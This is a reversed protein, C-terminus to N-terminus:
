PTKYATKRVAGSRDTQTWTGVRRGAKMEGETVIGGVLSKWPGELLGDKYTATSMVSGDVDYETWTGTKRDAAFQGTTAPKGNRFETYPGEAKGDKYTAQVSLKGDVYKKYVGEIRGRKYSSELTIQGTDTYEKWSGHRRDGAMHGDVVLKGRQTFEQYLGDPTGQYVHQKSAVKRNSHFTLMMGTGDKIEFRGLEVADRNYYTFLGNPKGVDFVGTYTMKNEYWETWTGDKKGAIYSGEREKNNDRDNWVWPGDRKGSAYQGKVRAVKRSRWLTYPGDLRGRYDYNEDIVLMGFQWIQRSGHRVGNTFTEDIRMTLNTGVHRPGDFKGNVFKETTLVSGDPAYMKAPGQLIGGKYTYESYAGGEDYWRKAVGTGFAMDYEGVLQGTPGLQRWHGDRQGTVYSGEEAVAGNPYRRQWPGDLKDDKYSGMVQIANDPYLTIFPGQKTGDPRACYWTPDPFPAPTATADGECALKPPDQADAPPGADIPVAATPPAPTLETPSSKPGAGSGCAVAFTLLVASAHPSLVVHNNCSSETVRSVAPDVGSSCRNIRIV